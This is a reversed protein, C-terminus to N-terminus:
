VSEVIEGDPECKSDKVATNLLRLLPASYLEYAAVTVTM